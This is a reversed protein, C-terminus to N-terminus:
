YDESLKKLYDTGEAKLKDQDIDVEKERFLKMVEEQHKDKNSLISDNKYLQMLKYEHTM